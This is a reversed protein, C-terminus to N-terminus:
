VPNNAIANTFFTAAMRSQTIIALKMDNIEKDIGQIFELIFNILEEKKYKQLHDETILFTFDYKEPNEPIRRMIKFRDARLALFRQFMHTLLSEIENKKISFSIRCSNISGEILCTEFETKCIHIPQMLLKPSDQFEVEPHSQREVQESPLFRLNLSADLADRITQLYNQHTLAM